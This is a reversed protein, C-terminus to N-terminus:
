LVPQPPRPQIVDKKNQNKVVKDGIQVDDLKALDDLDTLGNLEDMLEDKGEEAKDAFFDNLENHQELNEQIKDNLNEFEQISVKEQVQAITQQGLKM